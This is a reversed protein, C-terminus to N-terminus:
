PSPPQGGFIADQLGLAGGPGVWKHTSKRIAMSGRNVTSNDGAPQAGHANPVPWDRGTRRPLVAKCFSQDARDSPLANVVQDHEPLCM